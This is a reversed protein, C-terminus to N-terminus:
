KKELEDCLELIYNAMARAGTESFTYGPLLGGAAGGFHGMPLGQQCNGLISIRIPYWNTDGTDSIRLHGFERERKRGEPKRADRINRATEESIKIETGDDYILKM